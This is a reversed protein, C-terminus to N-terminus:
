LKKIAAQLIPEMVMYGNNNPHVGDIAFEQKLGHLENAMPTFYDVYIIDQQNAYAELLKNLQMVKEAPELGKRWPFDYAPLVSCLIVKIHNAKSLEVMAKINDLIMEITSPGTNGAIDNIGALIVVATPKLNIVDQRFRLLMQPTTQGSIGRNVYPANAFFEPRKKLWGETISNGMFVIRQENPKLIPLEKNQNKFRNLNAWDQANPNKFFSMCKFVHDTNIYDVGMESFLKWSMETDPIGWFRFAKNFGRATKVLEEIKLYDNSTMEKQGNWKFYEKFNLSILAIKDTENQTLGSHLSQYDFSIFDPYNPYDSVKPRNGSIVFTIKKSKVLFAYKEITKIIADLTTYAESKLDILLMLDQNKGLGLSYAKQLPELYLSEFTRKEQINKEDHTAYLTNNKLFLDVEISSAGASYADWFPLTKLYDNHAHVKYRIDSQSFGFTVITLFITVITKTKM